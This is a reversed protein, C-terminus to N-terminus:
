IVNNIELTDNGITITIKYITDGDENKGSEKNDFKDVKAVPKVNYNDSDLIYFNDESDIVYYKATTENSLFVLHKVVIDKNTNANKIRKGNDEDDESSMYNITGDNQVLVQHWDSDDSGPNCYPISARLKANFKEVHINGNDDYYWVFVGNDTEVAEGFSPECQGPEIFSYTGFKKVKENIDIKEYKGEDYSYLTGDTTLVYVVKEDYGIVDLKIVTGQVTTGNINVAQPANKEWEIEVEAGIFKAVNLYDNTDAVALFKQENSIVEKVDPDNEVKNDDSAPKNIMMGVGVGIALIIIAVIIAIIIKGEKKM